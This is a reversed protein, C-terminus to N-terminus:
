HTRADPLVRCHTRVAGLWPCLYLRGHACAAGSWPCMQLQGCAVALGFLPYLGLPLLWRLPCWEEIPLLYQFATKGVATIPKGYWPALGLPCPAIPLPCLASWLCIWVLISSASGSRWAVSLCALAVPDWCWLSAGPVDTQRQRDSPSAAQPVLLAAPRLTSSWHGGTQQQKVIKSNEM